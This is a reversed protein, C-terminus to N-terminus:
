DILQCDSRRGLIMPKNIQDDPPMGGPPWALLCAPLCASVCAPMCALLCVLVCAPLAGTSIQARCHCALRCALLCAPLCALLCAVLCVPPCALLRASSCELDPALDPGEQARRPRGRARRPARRPEGSRLFHGALPVPFLRICAFELLLLLDASGSRDPCMRLGHSPSNPASALSLPVCLLLM